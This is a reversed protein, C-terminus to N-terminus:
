CLMGNPHATCSPSHNQRKRTNSITGGPNNDVIAARISLSCDFGDFLHQVRAFENPKLEQFM